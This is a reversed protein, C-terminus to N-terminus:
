PLYIIENLKKIKKVSNFMNEILTHDLVFNTIIFERGDQSFLKTYGFYRLLNKYHKTSLHFEISELNESNLISPCSNKVITIIENEYDIEIRTNKEYWLYKAYQYIVLSFYYFLYSNLILLLIGFYGATKNNNWFGSLVKITGYLMLPFYLILFVILLSGFLFNFNLLTYTKIKSM